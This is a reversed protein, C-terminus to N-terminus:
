KDESNVKLKELIQEKQEDSIENINDGIMRLIQDAISEKLVAKSGLRINLEDKFPMFPQFLKFYTSGYAGQFLKLKPRKYGAELIQARAIGPYPDIYVIQRIGIQYLKKCCLECPSATVYIVGDKLKEGGYKVMQLMANEEAHLSRTFVQNKEGEYKNQLSKFCYPYPLGNLTKNVDECNSYDEDINQIFSHSDKYCPGSNREFGSYMFGYYQNTIMDRKIHDRTDRLGCPIQGYPVENWGITRISHDKNTIVAGVQRSLCSSNFKASYAMQMCREESSPTILGPHQILAAYKMWQEAMTYFKPVAQQINNENCIHIEADAICQEVNPGSFVGREYDENSVEADTLYKVKKFLMDAKNKNKEQQTITSGWIKGIKNRLHKERNDDDHVAILYFATYRERLFMAEMSNRISDIVIRTTVRNESEDRQKRKGKIIFNILNVIGYLYTTKTSRGEFYATSGALPNGTGRIVYSLRHYLFCLCYYDEHMLKKHLCDVFDCFITSFFFHTLVIKDEKPDIEDIFYSGSFKNLENVLGDWDVNLKKLLNLYDATGYDKKTFKRYDDDMNSYSPRYKDKLIANINKQLDSVTLSAKKQKATYLLVYLWVVSTYKVLEFPKYNNKIFNYCISYKRKFILKGIAKNSINEVGNHFTDTNYVYHVDLMELSQPSRLIDRKRYFAGDIMYSALTSCGSGALGTLGVITFDERSKYFRDVPLNDRSDMYGTKKIDRLSDKAITKDTEM